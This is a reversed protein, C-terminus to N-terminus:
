VDDARQESQEITIIKAKAEELLQQARKIEEVGREYLKVAEELTIEPDNLKEVISKTEELLTEFSKKEEM